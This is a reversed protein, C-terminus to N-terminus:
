TGRNAKKMRDRETKGTRFAPKQNYQSGGPGHEQDRRKQLIRQIKGQNDDLFGGLFLDIYNQAALLLEAAREPTYDGYPEILGQDNIRTGMNNRFGNKTGTGVLVEFRPPFHDSMKVVCMLRGDGHGKQYEEVNFTELGGANWTFVVAIKWTPRWEERDQREQRPREINELIRNVSM